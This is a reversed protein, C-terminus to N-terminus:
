STEDKGRASQKGTLRGTAPGSRPACAGVTGCGSRDSSPVGRAALLTGGLMPALERLQEAGDTRARTAVLALAGGILQTERKGDGEGDRVKGLLAALRGILHRRALRLQEAQPPPEISLLHALAPESALLDLAGEIGALGRDAAGGGAAACADEIRECLRDTGAEYAARLGSQPFTLFFPFFPFPPPFAFREEAERM